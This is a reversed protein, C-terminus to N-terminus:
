EEKLMAQKGAKIVELFDSVKGSYIVLGGTSSHDSHELTVMLEGDKNYRLETIISGDYSQAAAFIGKHGCRTADSRNSWPDGVTRYFKSM